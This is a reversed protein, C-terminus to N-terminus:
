PLLRQCFYAYSTACAADTWEGNAGVHLCNSANGSGPAAPAFHAYGIATGAAAGSWFRTTNMWMWQGEADADTGGLWYENVSAQTARARLAQDGAADAVRALAMGHKGCFVEADRFPASTSCLAYDVGAATFCQCGSPCVFSKCDPSCYQGSAGDDCAEGAAANVIGDGCVVPSCDADCMATARGGDCAEGPDVVSNGCKPRPDRYQKCIFAKTEADCVSDNWGQISQVEACNENGNQNNPEGAAWWAFLGGTATGNAAGNWYQAGDDWLWKGEQAADSGGIHFKPLSDQQSRLRLYSHEQGNTLRVLRMNFSTCASRAASFLLKDPCLMYRRGLYWECTCGARCRVTACTTGCTTLHDGDDCAEGSVTDLKGDGCSSFTCDANCAASAVRDDCAEGAQVIGDGCRAGPSADAPRADVAADVSPAGGAPPGSETGGNGGNNGGGSGTAGGTGGSAGTGGSPVGGTEVSSDPRARAGGSEVVAGDRVGHKESLLDYGIRGCGGLAMAVAVSSAAVLARSAAEAGM